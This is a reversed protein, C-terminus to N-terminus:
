IIMQYVELVNVLCRGIIDEVIVVEVQPSKMDGHAKDTAEVKAMM